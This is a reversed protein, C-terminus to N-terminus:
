RSGAIVPRPIPCFMSVTRVSISRVTGMLGSLSRPTLSINAITGTSFPRSALLYGVDQTFKPLAAVLIILHSKGSLSNQPFLIMVGLRASSPDISRRVTNEVSAQRPALPVLAAQLASTSSKIGDDVVAAPLALTPLNAPSIM